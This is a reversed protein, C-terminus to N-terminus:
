PYTGRTDDASLSLSVQCSGPTASIDIGIIFASQTVPTGVNNPTWSVQVYSGPTQVLLLDINTSYGQYTPATLMFPDDLSVTLNSIRFRPNGFKQSIHTAVYAMQATGSQLVPFEGYSIGNENQSATNQTVVTGPYGTVTVYNYFQDTDYNTEINTFPIATGGADSFYVLPYPSVFYNWGEFYLNGNGDLFVYGRESDALQQVYNLANGSYSATGMTFADNGGTFSDIPWSVSSATLARYLRDFTSEAVPNTLVLNQNALLAFGDSASATATSETSVDYNFSWTDIVGSFVQKPYEIAPNTSITFTIGRRPKVAGYIPSSSYNPDFVRNRNDFVVTLQGATFKDQITSRGTKMNVSRVYQTVDTPVYGLLGTDLLDTDLIFGTIGEIEVKYTYGNPM